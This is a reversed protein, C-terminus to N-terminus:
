TKAKTIRRKNTKTSCRSTVSLCLCVSLCLAMAYVASAFRRVTFVVHADLWFNASAAGQECMESLVESAASQTRAEAISDDDNCLMCTHDLVSRCRINTNNEYM